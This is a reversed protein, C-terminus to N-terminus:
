GEEKPNAKLWKEVQNAHFFDTRGCNSCSRSYHEHYGDANRPTYRFNAAVGEVGVNVAYQENGCNLCVFSALATGKLFRVFDDRRIAMAEEYCRGIASDLARVGGIARCPNQVHSQM